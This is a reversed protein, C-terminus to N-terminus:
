CGKIWTPRTGVKDWGVTGFYKIGDVQRLIVEEYWNYDVSAFVDGHKGWNHTDGYSPAVYCSYMTAAHAPSAILVIATAVLALATVLAAFYGLLARM